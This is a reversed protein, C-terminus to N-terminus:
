NKKKQKPDNFDPLPLINECRIGIICRHAQVQEKGVKLTLDAYTTDTQLKKYLTKVAEMQSM